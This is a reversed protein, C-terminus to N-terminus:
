RDYRCGMDGRQSFPLSYATEDIPMPMPASNPSHVATLIVPPPVVFHAQQAEKRM